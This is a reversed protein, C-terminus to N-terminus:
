ETRRRVLVALALLWVAAGLLEGAELWTDHFTLSLRHHGPPVAVAMLALDRRLVPIKRGDLRATWGPHWTEGIAVVSRRPGAARVDFELEGPSSAITRVRCPSPTEPVREPLPDMLVAADAVAPGLREVAAVWGHRGRATVLHDVGRALPWAGGVPELVARPPGNGSRDLRAVAVVGLRRLLPVTLEPDISFLELHAGMATATWGLRTQDVDEELVTAIGWLVPMPPVALGADGHHGSRLSALHFLRHEPALGVLPRLFPPPSALEAPPRTPALGHGAAALDLVTLALIVVWATRTRRVALTVAALGLAAAALTVAARGDLVGGFVWRALGATVGAALGVLAGMRARRSGGLLDDLGGAALVALALAPLAMTKEPYRFAQDLLIRLSGPLLRQLVGTAVATGAAALLALWLRSRPRAALAGVALALVLIGPYLSLVLPQGLEPYCRSWYGAPGERGGRVPTEPPPVLYEGFRAPPLVWDEGPWVPPTATRSTMAALRVAPLLVPAAMVTALALAGFAIAGRRRGVTRGSRPARFGTWAIGLTVAFAVLSVPEGGALGAAVSVALLVADRRRGGDLTRRLFHLAWPLPALSLLVPILNTLSLGFGGFSWAMAGLAAAAHSRGMGRLLVFLGVGSLVLPLLIQLDMALDFPLIFFLWTSPHFVAFQPNAALPQGAGFYPNWAPPWGGSRLVELLAARYPRILAAIDRWYFTEGRFFLGPFLLLVLPIAAAPALRSWDGREGAGGAMGGM